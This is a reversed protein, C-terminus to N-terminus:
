PSRPPSLGSHGVENLFSKIGLRLIEKGMCGDEGPFEGVLSIITARAVSNTISSLGRAIRSVLQAPSADSTPLSTSSPSLILNRLVLISTTTTSEVFPILLFDFLWDEASRDFSM